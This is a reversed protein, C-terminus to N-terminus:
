HDSSKNKIKKNGNDYTSIHNQIRLLDVVFFEIEM